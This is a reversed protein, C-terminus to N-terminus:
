IRCSTWTASSRRCRSMSAVRWSPPTSSGERATDSCRGSAGCLDRGAGARRAAPHRAGPLHPHLQAALPREGRREPRHLFRSLRRTDLAPRARCRGGRRRAWAAGHLRHSRRAVGVVPPAVRRFGVRPGSLAGLPPWQSRREDIQGRLVRFLEPMRQIEDLIVLRDAHLDLYRGPDALRAADEPNELDLYLCDPTEAAIARALTTKGVQRPGLLAM